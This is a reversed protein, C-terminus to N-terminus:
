GGASSISTIMIRLRRYGASLQAGKAKEDRKRASRHLFVGKQIRRMSRRGLTLRSTSDIIEMELDGLHVAVVVGLAAVADVDDVRGGHELLEPGHDGDEDVGAGLLLIEIKVPLM